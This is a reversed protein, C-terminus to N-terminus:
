QPYKSMDHSDTPKALAKALASSMPLNLNLGKPPIEQMFWKDYLAKMQPSTYLEATAEDVLKKFEPDDKRIMPGYPLPTGFEGESMAYASPDKSGAIFSALLIDDLAFADARDTQVMLFAEAHDTSSLIKMGLNMKENYEYLLKLNLTGATSVVTKGKLDEITNLNSSKKSLYKLSSLFYSNSFSVQKWRDELNGDAACQIDTTGNALLPMRNTSNVPTYDVKLNPLDLKTKLFDVVYLCIDIGYGIPRQNADLFNMPIAVERSAVTITNTEKLKKITGSEQAHVGTTVIALLAAVSACKLMNM